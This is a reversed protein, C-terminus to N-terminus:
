AQERALLFAAFAAPTRVGHDLVADYIDASSVTVRYEPRAFWEDKIWLIALRTADSLRAILDAPRLREVHPPTAIWISIDIKWAHGDEGQQGSGM